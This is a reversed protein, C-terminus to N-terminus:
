VSNIDKEYVVVKGEKRINQVFFITIIFGEGNLHKVVALLYKTTVPTKRFLKYYHYNNEVTSFLVFDPNKLTEIIKPIQNKNFEKHRESIHKWQIETLRVNKDLKSIVEFM